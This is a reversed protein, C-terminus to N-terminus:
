SQFSSPIGMNSPRDKTTSALFVNHVQTILDDNGIYHYSLSPLKLIKILRPSYSDIGNYTQKSEKLLEIVICPRQSFLTNNFVSQVLRHGQLLQGSGLANLYKGLHVENSVPVKHFGLYNPFLGDFDKIDVAKIVNKLDDVTSKISIWVAFSDTLKRRQIWCQFPM